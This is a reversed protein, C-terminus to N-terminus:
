RVPRLVECGKVLTMGIHLCTLHDRDPGHCSIMPTMHVETVCQPAYYLEWKSQKSAWAVLVLLAICFLFRTM